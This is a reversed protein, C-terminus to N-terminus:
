VEPSQCRWTFTFESGVGVRSKATLEGDLMEALCHSISLGLGTGGYKRAISLDVQKYPTFVDALKAEPIGIGSDKVRFELRKLDGEDELMKLAVVVSGEETFKIANGVLNMLVQRIRTPDSVIQLPVDPEHRNELIIGKERAPARLVTTVEELVALASCPVLDVEFRGAQIKSMDLIDNVLDLLHQGSHVIAELDELTEADEAFRMSLLETYGLIATLPTRIEHSMNALFSSKRRDANEISKRSEESRSLRRQREIAYTLRRALLTGGLEGEVLYDQAGNRVADVDTGGARSTDIVVVPIAPAQAQLASVTEAASRHPGSVALVVVDNATLHELGDELQRECHLDFSAGDGALSNTVEGAVHPDDDILLVKISGDRPRTV